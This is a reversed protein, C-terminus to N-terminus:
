NYYNRFLFDAQVPNGNKDYSTNYIGELIFNSSILFNLIETIMPQNKYLEVFSGEFYIYKMSKILEKSGKLVELEYGQVDIKMLIDKQCDEIKILNELKSLKIKESAKKETGPFVTEQQKTIELLSSSDEKNSINIEAEKIENGIAFNHAHFNERYYFLNKLNIYASQIPEFCILKSKPFFFSALLAFQGRNAGVDIITNINDINKFVNIHETSPAVKYIILARYWDYNFSILIKLLKYIKKLFM